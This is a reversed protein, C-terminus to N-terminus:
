WTITLDWVVFYEIVALFCNFLCCHVFSFFLFFFWGDVNSFHFCFCLVCKLWPFAISMKISISMQTLFLCVCVVFLFFLLSFFVDTFFYCSVHAEFEQRVLDLKRMMNCNEEEYRFLSFICIMDAHQINDCHGMKNLM